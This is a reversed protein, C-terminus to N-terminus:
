NAIKEGSEGNETRENHKKKKNQLKVKIKRLIRLGLRAPRAL